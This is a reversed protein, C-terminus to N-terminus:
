VSSSSRPPCAKVKLAFLHSAVSFPVRSHQRKLGNECHAHKIPMSHPFTADEPIVAAHESLRSLVTLGM